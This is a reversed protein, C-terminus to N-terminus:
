EALARWVRVAHVTAAVDHVRLVAAGQSLAALGAAISAPGRGRAEAVGAMEGIFRKRSLGAIIPCRLNVFLSLRALLERNQAGRKAFGFGPDVAIRERVVGAAEAASVLERLETLVEAAVDRYRALSNMTKPTGRMHMLIVPCGRAAVLPAAAADHRLASVDNVIAAGADLARAMTSANRTDVSIAVDDRALAAIVPLIRRQEEEPPVPEAGPRTSEGGVDLIAAGDAAMRRGQEIAEGPDYLRGPDSFSDPTVNVIGM